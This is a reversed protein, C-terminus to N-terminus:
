EYCFCDILTKVVFGIIGVAVSFWFLYMNAQGGHEEQNFLFKLNM